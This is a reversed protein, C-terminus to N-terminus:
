RLGPALSFSPRARSRGSDALLTDILALTRTRVETVDDPPVVGHSAVQWTSALGFRARTGEDRLRVLQMVDISVRYALLPREGAAAPTVHINITLLPDEMEREPVVIFGAEELKFAITSRLTATPGLVAAQEPASITLGIRTIGELSQREDTLMELETAKWSSPSPRSPTQPASQTLMLLALIMLLM